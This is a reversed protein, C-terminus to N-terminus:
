CAYLLVFVPINAQVPCYPTVTSECRDWIPRVPCLKVSRSSLCGCFHHVLHPGSLCNSFHETGTYEAHLVVAAPTVWANLVLVTNDAINIGVHKM